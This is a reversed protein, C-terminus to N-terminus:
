KDEKPTPSEEGNPDKIAKGILANAVWATMYGVFYWETLRNNLILYMFGWTSLLWAGFRSVKRENLRGGVSILDVFSITNNPNKNLKYLWHLISYGLVFLLFLLITTMFDDMTFNSDILKTLLPFNM